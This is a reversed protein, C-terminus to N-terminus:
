SVNSLNAGEDLTAPFGWETDLAGMLHLNKGLMGLWYDDTIKHM